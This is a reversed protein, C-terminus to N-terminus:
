RRRQYSLRGIRQAHSAISAQARHRNTHGRWTRALACRRTRWLFVNAACAHDDTRASLRVRAPGLAETPPPASLPVIPLVGYVAQGAAIQPTSSGVPGAGNTAPAQSSRIGPRPCARRYPADRRTRWLFVNAACAHDDTRASLRVRAPGLAETPPPASLPVIPLVGCV